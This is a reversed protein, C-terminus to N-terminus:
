QSQSQSEDKDKYKAGVTAKAIYTSAVMLMLPDIGSPADFSQVSFEAVYCGAWVLVIIITIFATIDFKFRAREQSSEGSRHAM